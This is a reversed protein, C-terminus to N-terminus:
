ARVRDSCNGTSSRRAAMFGRDGRKSDVPPDQLWRSIGGPYRSGVTRCAWAFGELAKRIWHLVSLPFDPVNKGNVDAALASAFAAAIEARLAPM